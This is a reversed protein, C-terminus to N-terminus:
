VVGEKRTRIKLTQCRIIGQPSAPDKCHRWREWQGPSNDKTLFMRNVMLKLFECDGQLCLEPRLRRVRDWLVGAQVEVPCVQPHYHHHHHHKQIRPFVGVIFIVITVVSMYGASCNLTAQTRNLAISPPPAEPSDGSIPKPKQHNDCSKSKKIKITTM